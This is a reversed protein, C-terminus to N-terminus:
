PRSPAFVVLSQLLEHFASSEIFLLQLFNKLAVIKKVFPVFECIIVLSSVCSRISPCFEPQFFWPASFAPLDEKQPFPRSRPFVARGCGAGPGFDMAFAGDSISTLVVNKPTQMLAALIRKLRNDALFQDFTGVYEGDAVMDGYVGRFFKSDQRADAVLEALPRARKSNPTVEFPDNFENPPTVKLRLDELIRLGSDGAYKYLIM